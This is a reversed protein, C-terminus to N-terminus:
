TRYMENKHWKTRHLQKEKWNLQNLKVIHPVEMHTQTKTSTKTLEQEYFRSGIRHYLAKRMDLELHNRLIDLIM